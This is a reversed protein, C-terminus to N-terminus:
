ADQRYFQEIDTEYRDVIQDYQAQLQAFNLSDMGIKATELLDEKPAIITLLDAADYVPPELPTLGADDGGIIDATINAVSEIHSHGTTVLINDYRDALWALHRAMRIDRQVIFVTYFDPHEDNIHDNAANMEDLTYDSAPKEDLGVAAEAAGLIESIREQPYEDYIEDWDMDILALTTDHRVTYDLVFLSDTVSRMLQQAAFAIPSSEHAVLTPQRDELEAELEELADDEFHHTALLTIRDGITARHSTEFTVVPDEM